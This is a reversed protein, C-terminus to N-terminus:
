CSLLALSVPSVVAAVQTGSDWLGTTARLRMQLVSGSTRDLAHLFGNHESLYSVQANGGLHRISLDGSAPDIAWVTIQNASTAYLFRGRADMKLSSQLFDQDVRKRALFVTQFPEEIIGESPRYRHCSIAPTLEHKVYLFAGGPHLVMSGPGSGSALSVKSRRQLETENLEFVSLHDCGLDSALLFRGQKEYLLTHPHASCQYKSHISGGIEKLISKAAGLTGNAEIPLVNYAGGGYIAIVLNSGDPSIALDRPGTGSLSLAQRQVQSLAGSRANISFVEVTGRPLNDHLDVNNAVYLFQGNPHLALAVPAHSTVRQVHTWRSGDIRFIELHDRGALGVSGIYAYGTLTRNLASATGASVFSCLGAAAM